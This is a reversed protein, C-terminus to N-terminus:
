KRNEVIEPMTLIPMRKRQIMTCNEVIVQMTWHRTSVRGAQLCTARAAVCSYRMRGLAVTGCPRRSIHMNRINESSVSFTNMVLKAGAYM